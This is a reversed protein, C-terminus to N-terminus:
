GGKTWKILISILQHATIQMSSSYHQQSTDGAIGEGYGLTHCLTPARSQLDFPLVNILNSILNM